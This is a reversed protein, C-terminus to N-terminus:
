ETACLNLPREVSPALSALLEQKARVLRHHTLDLGTGHRDDGASLHQIEHNNVAVRAPDNRAIQHGSLDLAMGCIGHEQAGAAIPGDEVQGGVGHVRIDGTRPPGVLASGVHCVRAVGLNM